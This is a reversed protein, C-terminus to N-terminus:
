AAVERPLYQVCWGGLRERKLEQRNRTIVKAARLRELWQQQRLEAKRQDFYDQRGRQSQAEQERKCQWAWFMALARSCGQAAQIQNIAQSITM